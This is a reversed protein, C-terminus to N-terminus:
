FPLDSDEVVPAGISSPADGTPIAGGFKAGVGEETPLLQVIKSNIAGNYPAAKKLKLYVMTNAYKEFSLDVEEGINGLGTAKLFAELKWIAKPSLVMFDKFEKGAHDDELLSYTAVLMDNGSSSVTDEVLILVAKYMGDPISFDRVANPDYDDGIYEQTNVKVM